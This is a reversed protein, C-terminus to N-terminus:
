RRDGALLLCWDGFEHWLYDGALAARYARAVLDHGAVAELLLLHSARPAHWGTLLGDVVRAPRRPGLVLDTWGMRPHVRGHRDAASELARTVTTGVAIVRGGRARTSEVLDATTEPVRFPEPRPPEHAELSAVGAHLTVPAVTVGARVLRTVLLPTFPRGASAMEASAGNAVADRGDLRLPLDAFVTQHAALPLSRAGHAYSIPRGHAELYAGVAMPLDLSARWVRAGRKPSQGDAPERLSVTGGTALRVVAGRPADLVPGTGDPRRLEVEWTTATGPQRSSLHVGVPQPGLHGDLAAPMTPSTNVVVLDGPDLLAPLDRARAHTITDHDAALLRVGDRAMGRHEPPVAAERDAPLDFDLGVAPGTAVSEDHGEPRSAPAATGSTATTPTATTLTSGTM